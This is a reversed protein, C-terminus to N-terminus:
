QYMYSSEVMSSENREPQSLQEAFARRRERIEAAHDRLSSVDVDVGAVPEVARELLVCAAEPDPFEADSEVILGLATSGSTRAENLLAGTPGSWVGSTVPPEIDQDELIRDGDGTAVGYLARDRDLDAPHGQALGSVYMPLADIDALLGSLCGAFDAVVDPSVATESQLALLDRGEDAYIRVPPVVGFESGLYAAVPPLSPCEISAFYTMDFAEILHDAALKGVLGLGPLGDVFVPRDFRLSDNQIVLHSM